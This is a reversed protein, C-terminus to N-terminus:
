EIVHSNLEFGTVTKTQHSDMDIFTVRGLAHDQAVYVKKTSAMVGLSVPPSGMTLNDVLFGLLDICEVQKIGQATDNLLLYASQGDPAFSIPGTQTSTLQLKVFGSSLSLLSYGHSKDLFTEVDDQASITGPVKNHMIVVNKGDPSAYIGRVGKKLSTVFIQRTNLDARVVAEQSTANSFLLASKGDPTLVAQGVTYPAVSLSDITAGPSFDVPWDLLVVTKAERLVAVLMKGDARLDIDTPEADLTLDTLDGSILNVARLGKVGSQRLIAAAGDSTILVEEPKAELLANRLLAVPPIITASNIKAVEAVSVGQETVIFVRSSDASFEVKQTNFGVTLTFTKEQGATLNILTVEQLAHGATTKGQNAVADFYAVGYKGDPSLVLQNLGKATKLVIQQDKGDAATRIISVNAADRNLVVALDQGSVTQLAGPNAGVKIATVALSLANIKAVMNQKPVALYIFNQGSAPKELYRDNEVEPPLAAGGDGVVGADSASSLICYGSEGCMYGPLCDNAGYCRTYKDGMSAGADGSWKPSSMSESDYGSGCAAISVISFAFVINQFKM